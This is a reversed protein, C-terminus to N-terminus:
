GLMDAGGSAADDHEGSVRKLTPSRQVLPPALAEAADCCLRGM